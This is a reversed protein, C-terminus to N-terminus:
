AHGRMLTIEASAQQIFADAKERSRFDAVWDPPGDICQLFVCHYTITWGDNNVCHTHEQVMFQGTHISPSYQQSIHSQTAYM